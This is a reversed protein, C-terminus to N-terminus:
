TRSRLERKLEQVHAQLLNDVFQTAREASQVGNEGVRVRVTAGFKAWFEGRDSLSLAYEVQDGEDLAGPM